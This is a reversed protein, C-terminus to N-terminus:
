LPGRLCQVGKHPRSPAYDAGESHDSVRPRDEHRPPQQRLGDGSRETPQTAWLPVNHLVAEHIGELGATRRRQSPLRPRHSLLRCASFAGTDPKAGVHRHHRRELLKLHLGRAGYGGLPCQPSAASRLYPRRRVGGAGTYVCGLSGFRLTTGPTLTVWRGDM